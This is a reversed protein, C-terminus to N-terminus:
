PTVPIPNRTVDIHLAIQTSPFSKRFDTESVGYRKGYVVGVLMAFAIADIRLRIGISCAVQRCVSRRHRTSWARM